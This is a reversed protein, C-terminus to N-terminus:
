HHVPMFGCVRDRGTEKAQYVAQDAGAILTEQDRCCTGDVQAVGCSVSLRLVGKPTAVALEKVALRIEEAKAMAGKLDTLPLLVVFEEGGFRAMCDSQRLTVPLVRALEKLVQDGVPHGHTDNIQKFHDVDLLVMSLPLGHREALRLEESLRMDFFRRNYLGTLPDTVALKQLSVNRNALSEHLYANKLTGTAHTAILECLRAERESFGGGRRALCLMMTGLAPDDVTLPVVLLASIGIRRLDALAPALFPAEAVDNVMVTTGTELARLLEPYAALGIRLTRSGFGERAELIERSILISGVTRAEDVHTVSCRFAGIVASVQQILTALVDNPQLSASLARSAGAVAALDRLEDTLTVSRDTSVRLHRALLVCATAVVGLVATHPLWGGDPMARWLLLADALAAVALLILLRRPRVNDSSYRM